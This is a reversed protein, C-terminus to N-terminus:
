FCNRGRETYMENQKVYVIERGNLSIKPSPEETEVIPIEKTTENGSSDVVSLFLKILM